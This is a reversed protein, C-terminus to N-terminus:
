KRPRKSLRCGGFPIPTKEEISVIKVNKKNFSKLFNYRGLGKGMVILHIYKYKNSKLFSNLSYVMKQINYKTNRRRELKPFMKVSWQKILKFNYSYLFIFSTKFSSKFLLRIGFKSFIKAKGINKKRYMNIFNNLTGFGLMFNCYELYNNFVKGFVKFSRNSNCYKKNIKIIKKYMQRELYNIKLYSSIKKVKIYSKKKINNFNIYSKNNSKKKELNYMFIKNRPFRSEFGHSRVQCILVRVM